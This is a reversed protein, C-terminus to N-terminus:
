TKWHLWIRLQRYDEAKINDTVIVVNRTNRAERLRLNLITLGPSVFSSVLLKGVHWKGNPTQCACNGEGDLEVAVISQTSRLLAFRWVYFVMSVALVSIASNELFTPIQLFIVVYAAAAHAACIGFFLIKSPTLAIKLSSTLAAGYPL